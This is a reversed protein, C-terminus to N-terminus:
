RSVCLFLRTHFFQSKETYKFGSNSRNFHHKKSDIAARVNWRIKQQDPRPHFVSVLVDYSASPPAGVGMHQLMRMKLNGDDGHHRLTNTTKSVLQLKAM